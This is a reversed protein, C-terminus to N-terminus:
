AGLEPYGGLALWVLVISGILLITTTLVIGDDLGMGGSEVEEIVEPEPAAARRSGSRQRKAAM